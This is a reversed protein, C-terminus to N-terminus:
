HFLDLTAELVGVIPFGVGPFRICEMVRLTQITRTRNPFRQALHKLICRINSIAVVVFVFIGRFVLM